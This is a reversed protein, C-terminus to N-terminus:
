RVGNDCAIMASRDTCTEPRGSFGNTCVCSAMCACSPTGHCETPIPACYEGGGGGVGGIEVVCVTGTPCGTAPCVGQFPGGDPRAGGDGYSCMTKADSSADQSSGGAGSQGGGGGAGGAANNPTGSECAGVIMVALACTLVGLLSQNMLGLNDPGAAVARPQRAKPQSVSPGSGLRASQHQCTHHRHDLTIRM